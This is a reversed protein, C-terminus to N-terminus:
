QPDSPPSGKVRDAITRAIALIGGLVMLGAGILIMWISWTLEKFLVFLFCGAGWLAFGAFGIVHRVKQDRTM